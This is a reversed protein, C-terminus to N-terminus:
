LNLDVLPEEIAQDIPLALLFRHGLSRTELLELLLCRLRPLRRGLLLLLLLLRLAPGLGHSSAEEKELFRLLGLLLESWALLRLRLPLLKLCCQLLADVM